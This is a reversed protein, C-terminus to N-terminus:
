SSPPISSPRAITVYASFVFATLTGLSVLLDMNASRSKLAHYSGEYFGYGSYFQVPLTLILLVYNLYFISHSFGYTIVIVPISLSWGVILRRKLRRDETEPSSYKQQCTKSCFYYTQGDVVSKLDTDEPVFMGCVPDTPM